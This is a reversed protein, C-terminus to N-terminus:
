HIGIGQKTIVLLVYSMFYCYGMALEKMIKAMNKKIVRFIGSLMRAFVSQVDLPTTVMQEFYALRISFM